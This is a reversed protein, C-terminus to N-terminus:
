VANLRNISKELEDVPGKLSRLSAATLSSATLPLSRMSAEEKPLSAGLNASQSTSNLSSKSSRSLETDRGHISSRTELINTSAQLADQSSSSKKCKRLVFYSFSSVSVALNLALMAIIYSNMDFSVDM